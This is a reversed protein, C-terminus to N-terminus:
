LDLRPTSNRELSSKPRVKSVDLLNLRSLHLFELLFKWNELLHTSTISNSPKPSSEKAPWELGDLVSALHPCSGRRRHLPAHIVSRQSAGRKVDMALRVVPLHQLSCILSNPTSPSLSLFSLCLLSLLVFPHPCSGPISESAGSKTQLTRKHNHEQHEIQGIAREAMRCCASVSLVKALRRRRLEAKPIANQNFVDEFSMVSMKKIFGHKARGFLLVSLRTV